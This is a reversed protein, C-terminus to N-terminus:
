LQAGAVPSVPWRRSWAGVPRSTPGHCPRWAGNPRRTCRRSGARPMVVALSSPPLSGRSRVTRTQPQRSTPQPTRTTWRSHRMRSPVASRSPMSCSERRRRASPPMPVCASHTTSPRSRWACRSSHRSPSSRHTASDSLGADRLPQVDTPSTTNPDRAVKRAWSAMARESTSLRDDVGRLVGAATQADSAEALKSGWALSCYSDGFASACAAVLIGRQRLSLNDASNAQRLLDFLGSVTAPQYAWLRSVNMVYGIENLDEDFM